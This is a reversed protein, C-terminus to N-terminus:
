IGTVGTLVGQRRPQDTIWNGFQFLFGVEGYQNFSSMLDRWMIGTGSTPVESYPGTIDPTGFDVPKLGPASSIGHWRLYNENLCWISGVTAKQDKVFPTARWVLSSFGARGALQSGKVIGKSMRTIFTGGDMNINQKEYPTLLQDYLDYTTMDTLFLTPQQSPANGGAVATHLNALKQITLTGGSATVTGKLTTYTTRSLNGLTVVNSGDDALAKLGLFDKNSNGTGDLYLMNAIDDMMSMKAIQMQTEIIGLVKTEAIGNIIQDTGPISVPIAYSRFDYALYQVVDTTGVNLQEMGAFSKGQTNKGLMVPYKLTEGSWPRGNSMFRFPILNDALYNDAIQPIIKDQTISIVRNSFTM